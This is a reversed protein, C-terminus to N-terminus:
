DYCEHIGTVGSVADLEIRDGFQSTDHTVLFGTSMEIASGGM